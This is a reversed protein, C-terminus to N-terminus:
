FMPADSTKFGTEGKLISGLNASPPLQMAICGARIKAFKPHLSETKRPFHCGLFESLNASRTDIQQPVLAITAPLSPRFNKSPLTHTHATAHSRQWKGEFPARNGM